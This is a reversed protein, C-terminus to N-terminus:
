TGEISAAQVSDATASGGYVSVATSDVIDGGIGKPGDVGHINRTQMLLDTLTFALNYADPVNENNNLVSQGKTSVSLDVRAILGRRVGPIEYECLVPPLVFTAKLKKPLTWYIMEDVFRKNKKYVSPTTNYLNFDFSVAELNTDKWVYATETKYGPAVLAAGMSRAFKAGGIVAQAASGLTTGVSGAINGLTELSLPEWSHSNNHHQTSFFPLFLEKGVPDLKYIGEYPDTILNFTQSLLQWLQGTRMELLRLRIRPVLSKAKATSSLSWVYNNVVDYDIQQTSAKEQDGLARLTAEEVDRVADVAKDLLSEIAM